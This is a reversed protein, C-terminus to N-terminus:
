HYEKFRVPIPSSIERASEVSPPWNEYNFNNCDMDFIDSFLDMCTIQTSTADKDISSIESRQQEVHEMETSYTALPQSSDLSNFTPLLKYQESNTQEYTHQSLNEQNEQQTISYSLRNQEYEYSQQIETQQLCSYEIQQQSSGHQQTNIQPVNSMELPMIEQQLLDHQIDCPIQTSVFQNSTQNHITQTQSYSVDLTDILNNEAGGASLENPKSFNPLQEPWVSSTNDPFIGELFSENM